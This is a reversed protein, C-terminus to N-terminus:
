MGEAPDSVQVAGDEVKNEDGVKNEDEGEDEDWLHAENVVVEMARTEFVKYHRGPLDLGEGHLYPRVVYDVPYGVLYERDVYQVSHAHMVCGKDTMDDKTTPEYLFGHAQGTKPHTFSMDFIQPSVHFWRDVLLVRTDFEDLHYALGEQGHNGWPQPLFFRGLEQKLLGSVYGAEFRFEYGNALHFLEGTLARWERHDKKIERAAEEPWDRFVLLQQFRYPVPKEVLRHPPRRTM